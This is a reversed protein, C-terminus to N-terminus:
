SKARFRLIELVPSWGLAGTLLPYLAFIRLAFAPLGDASGWGVAIMGLGLVIRALRDLRRLNAPFFMKRQELSALRTLPSSGTM